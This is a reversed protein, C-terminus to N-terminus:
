HSAADTELSKIAKELGKKPQPSKGSTVLSTQHRVVIRTIGHDALLKFTPALTEAPASVSTIWLFYFADPALANQKLYDALKARPIAKGTSPILDGNSSIQFDYRTHGAAALDIDEPSITRLNYERREQAAALTLTLAFLSIVYRKM